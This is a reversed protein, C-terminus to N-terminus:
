EGHPFRNNEEVSIYGQPCRGTLFRFAKPQGSKGGAEAAHQCAAFPVRCVARSVKTAAFNAFCMHFAFRFNRPNVNVSHMHCTTRAPSLAPLDCKFPCKKARKCSPLLHQARSRHSKTNGKGSMQCM